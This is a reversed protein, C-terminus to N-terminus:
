LASDRGIEAAHNRIPVLLRLDLTM